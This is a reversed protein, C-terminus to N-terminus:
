IEKKGFDNGSEGVRGEASSDKRRVFVINAITVGATCALFWGQEYNSLL